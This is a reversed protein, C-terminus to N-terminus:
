GLIASIRRAERLRLAPAYAKELSGQHLACSDNNVPLLRPCTRYRNRIPRMLRQRIPQHELPAETVPRHVTDMTVRGQDTDIITALDQATETATVPRHASDMTRAPRHSLAPCHATTSTGHDTDYSYRRGPGYSYDSRPPLGYGYDRPGPRYGYRGYPPPGYRYDGPGPGYGYDYRHGPGYEYPPAPGRGYGYHHPLDYDAVGRYGYDYGPGVHAAARNIPVGPTLYVPGAGAGIAIGGPAVYAPQAAVTAVHM